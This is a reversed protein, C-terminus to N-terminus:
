EAGYRQREAVIRLQNEGLEDRWSEPTSHTVVRGSSARWDGGRHQFIPMEDNHIKHASARLCLQGAPFTFRLFGEATVEPSGPAAGRRFGDVEGRCARALDVYEQSEPPVTTVWGRHFAECEVEECTARRWHTALPQRVSFTRFLHPPAAPAIRNLGFM